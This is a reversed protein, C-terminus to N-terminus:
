LYTITRTFDGYLGRWDGLLFLAWFHDDFRVQRMKHRYSKRVEKPMRGILRAVMKRQHITLETVIWYWLIPLSIVFWFGFITIIVNDM